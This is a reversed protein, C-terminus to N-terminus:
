KDFVERPKSGNAPGVVGLKELQDIIYSARNYGISLRRQLYSASAKGSEIVIKKSEELLEDPHIRPDAVSFHVPDVEELNQALREIKLLKFIIWGQALLILGLAVELFM